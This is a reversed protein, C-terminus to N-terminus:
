PVVVVGTERRKLQLQDDSRSRQARLGPWAFSFVADRCGFRITCFRLDMIEDPRYNIAAPFAAAGADHPARM